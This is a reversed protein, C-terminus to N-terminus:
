FYLELLQVTLPNEGHKLRHLVLLHSNFNWPGNKEVRDVDVKFYFRFFFRGNELDLISVEGIPHWINALTLRM